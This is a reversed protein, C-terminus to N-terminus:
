RLRRGTFHAAQWVVQAELDTQFIRRGNLLLQKVISLEHSSADLDLVCAWSVPSRLKDSELVWNQCDKM